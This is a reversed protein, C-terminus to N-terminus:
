KMIINVKYTKSIETGLILYKIANAAEYEDTYEKFLIWNNKGMQTWIQVAKM